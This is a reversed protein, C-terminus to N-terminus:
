IRTAGSLLTITGSVPEGGRRPDVLGLLNGPLSSPAAPVLDTVGPPVFGTGYSARFMVDELPAYRLGVTPDTSHVKNTVRAVTAQTASSGETEYRDHRGALQLELERVGPLANHSSVLPLRVELYFSDVSQSKGPSLTVTQVPGGSAITQSGLREERHEILTSVDPSGGPLSFLPGAFRLAADKLTTHIPSQTTPPNVFTSFDTAFENTDRLVNVAGNAVAAAAAGALGGPTSSTFRTREFTYDLESHWDAPLGVILGGVARRVHNSAVILADADSVPM